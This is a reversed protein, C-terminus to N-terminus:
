FTAKLTFTVMDRDSILAQSGRAFAVAGTPGTVYDGFFGVYQLTFQYKQYVDLSLGASWNGANENDGFLLASNGSLGRSYSLPMSLDMGPFVQFWTPTFSASVAVADKTVRDINNYGVRGLFYNEGQNVNSWHSWTTEFAWNAIDFLPTKNILGLFNIVGHWTDGRAGLTQGVTPRPTGPLIIAAESVLPMNHRYSLEAGVSVGLIARSLTIGYLDIGDSYAAFYEGTALDVHVQPLMDTFHRYYLGITGGGLWDPSWRSSVGWNKTGNPKQDEGHRFLVGPALILTEGGYSLVDANSLYSGAEPIRYPEWQLFYQAAISLSSTLQAQASVNLLPRFLEKAESGPTAFGKAADIPMQSYSIGNLAGGFLLSEGWYVTHRGVKINVPVPGLNLKGFVFADLLEADPGGHLRKTYANLGLSQRGNELHNSTAVSDNGLADHYRQDYWAAGSVRAGYDKKYRLDLESIIDLRNTVTGRNFNRDGDDMNPNGIIANDPGKVRWGYNYRFTNDWRLEVDKNGTDVEFAIASSCIGLLLVITVAICKLRVDLVGLAQRREM